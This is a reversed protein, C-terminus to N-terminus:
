TPKSGKMTRWLALLLIAGCSSVVLQDVFGTGIYELNLLQAVWRGLIGGLVGVVLNTPLGGNSRMVKEAIYGAIIGVIVATIVGM